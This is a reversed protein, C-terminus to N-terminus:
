NKPPHYKMKTNFYIGFRGIEKKIRKFLVQSFTGSKRLTRVGTWVRNDFSRVTRVKGYKMMDYCLRGDEGHTKNMYYGEKMGYERVFGMSMGYSNLFPRKVHRVAAILDKFIELISLQWRSFGKESIFSYRGYVSATGPTQLQTTMKEIWCDPYICDSDGSLIYKGKAQEMGMQRGPGWGQIPQFCNRIHLKDLTTQTNDTSNNNVVIIEFPFQTRSSALSGVTKLIDVEENWASIVVSVLPNDSVVKDLRANIEDFVSPPIESFNNYSYKYRNIWTPDSFFNKRM